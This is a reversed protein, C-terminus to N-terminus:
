FFNIEQYKASLQSGAFEIQALKKSFFVQLPVALNYIVEFLIMERRLIKKSPTKLKSKQVRIVNFYKETAWGYFFL